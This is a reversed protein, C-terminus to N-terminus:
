IFDVDPLFPYRMLYHIAKDVSLNDFVVNYIMSIIPTRLHYYKSLGYAIKVTRVGEVVEDMSKLIDERKIGSALQIGFSYNRSKDSTATAILDGIGATGLFSRHTAGVAKGIEIMERLGRTILMAQINKGLGRGALMGSGLAIINKLAGAMEAGILDYSGFVFFYRSALSEQGAQIVEDYESAIVCATPQGELIEKSLNPGSLCGVRLVSSEERIVESMTHINSRSIDKEEINSLQIGTLDLGKTGHILIHAPTLFESMAIITNRFSESPVVPFIVNCTQLVEQLNSTAIIQNALQVGLHEHTLNIKEVLESRRSFLYVEDSNHALLTAITTGFSGAGIVGVKRKKAKM